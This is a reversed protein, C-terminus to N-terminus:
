REGEECEAHGFHLEHLRNVVASVFADNHNAALHSLLTSAFLDARRKLTRPGRRGGRIGLRRRTRSIERRFTRHNIGRDDLGMLDFIEAASLGPLSALRKVRDRITKDLDSLGRVKPPRGRRRATKPEQRLHANQCAVAQDECFIAARGAMLCHGVPPGGLNLERPRRRERSERKRRM